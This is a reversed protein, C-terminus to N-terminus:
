KKFFNGIEKPSFICLFVYTHINRDNWKNGMNELWSINEYFNTIIERTSLSFCKGTVPNTNISFRQKSYTSKILFLFNCNCKLQM